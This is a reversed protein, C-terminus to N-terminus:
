PIQVTLVNTLAGTPAQGWFYCAAQAYVTVGSLSSSFFQPWNAEGSSHFVGAQIERGQSLDLGSNGFPTSSNGLSRSGVCVYEAAEQSLLGMEMRTSNLALGGWLVPRAFSHEQMWVENANVFSGVIWEYGSDESLMEAHLISVILRRHIRHQEVRSMPDQDPGEDLDVCGYHGTDPIEVYLNRESSICLDYWGRAYPFLPDVAGGLWVSTGDFDAIQSAGGGGTGGPAVGIITRIRPELDTLPALTMGGASHGFVAWDGSRAMNNLWHAPDASQAEAWHLFTQCEMASPANSSDISAVLFGHSAVHTCIEDHDRARGPNGHMFGVVPYPGSSADAQTSRGATVAPYYIRGRYNTGPSTPHPFYVIEWGVPFSGPDEPPPGQAALSLALSPLLAGILM